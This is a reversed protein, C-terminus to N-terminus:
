LGLLILREKIELVRKRMQMLEAEDKEFENWYYSVSADKESKPALGVKVQEEWMEATGRSRFVKDEMSPVRAELSKLELQLEAIEHRNAWRKILKLM